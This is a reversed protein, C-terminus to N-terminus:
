LIQRKVNTVEFDGTPTWLGYGFSADYQQWALIIHDARRFTLWASVSGSFRVYRPGSLCISCHHGHTIAGLIEPSNDLYSRRRFIPSCISAPPGGPVEAQGRFVYLQLRPYLGPPPLSPGKISGRRLIILKHRYSGAGLILGCFLVILPIRFKM